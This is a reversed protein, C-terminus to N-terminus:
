VKIPTFLPSQLSEREIGSVIKGKGLKDKFAGSEAHSPCFISSEDTPFPVKLQCGENLKLQVCHELGVATIFESMCNIAIILSLLEQIFLSLIRTLSLGAQPSLIKIGFIKEGLPSPTFSTNLM